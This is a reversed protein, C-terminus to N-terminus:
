TKLLKDDKVHFLIYLIFRTQNISRLKTM